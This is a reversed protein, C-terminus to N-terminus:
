SVHSALEDLGEFALFDGADAVALGLRVERGAVRQADIHLDLLALALADLGELAKADRAGPGPQVLTEGHSLQGEAFADLPNERKVRGHEVRDFNAALALNTAGLKIVKA